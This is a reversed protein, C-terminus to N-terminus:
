KDFIFWAIGKVQVLGAWGENVDISPSSINEHLYLRYFETFSRLYNLYNGM